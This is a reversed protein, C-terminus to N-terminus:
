GGGTFKAEIEDILPHSLGAKRLEVFDEFVITEWHKEESVDKEGRYRLYLARAEDVRDLFMLAHARNPYLWIQEPALLVTQDACELAKAFNGALLFNRALGGMSGTSDQLDNQWRKSSPDTTALRERIAISDRLAKLADDLKGQLKLVTGVWHHSWALARRWRTNNSDAAALRERIAISDRYAKLAEDLKGQKVLAAGINSYSFSLDGQWRTNSPDAAALRERIALAERHAKLAEDLKGQEVLVEGVNAYAVSLDRQSRTNSRDAAAVREQIALSDRYAKLADDRKRQDVLVDGVKEHSNSLDSQWQMNSPDAAALREAIALGDRYANLADDLKGQERLLNGVRQHAGSLSRQLQMNSPDTAALRERIALSDRYAKLAEDLKGQDILADGIKIHSVSLDRQWGANGPDSKSRRDLIILAANLLRTRDALEARDLILEDLNFLFRVAVVGVIQLETTANLLRLAENLGECDDEGRKALVADTLVRTAGDLEPQTLSADAYFAAARLWDASGLLHVMTESQRLPDDNPLSDLHDAVASHFEAVSVSHTSLYQCVAVRMQAHNFDWQGLGGRQRLQGRFLRRLSAFRLEEWQEGSLRPLLSRFDSERWGARSIAIFGLFARTLLIGFLKEARDFTRQYLGLVDAPLEAVIGVMLAHLQEAPSGSYARMAHAFDDADLLNLEEVALVLWLTNRWAPGDQGSKTLLADLVSPELTRHYRACIREAIERAEASDLPQLPLTEVGAREGLANSADGSIATAILRANVPWVRPLWTMFRGRTTAEFQDLADILVVVRRQGAMRVLLAYFTTEITDPDANEALGSATGLAAALEDIWRRLMDEVSPARASAGAAHALVFINSQKWRRHLEGFIASKGSGPAGTLCLGWGAAEQAPSVALADLRSLILGRGVFDRARDEIYDDLAQREVQQWTLEPEAEASATQAALDSWIDEIVAHGWAELGTVVQRERDWGAAYRRVRNPLQTEIKSKLIALRQGRDAAAAAAYDDSYQAALEPSMAAYPLPARLYFFSRPQQEPDRLVGFSIELDTVSRGAIDGGFGEELAAAAIRDTPPVWGYRDGLLVIMFPRCRRVEGLCVKLVQLERQEGDELAATAVGLRLDVWELHRRHARLREELAPFVFRRLHDREAHM